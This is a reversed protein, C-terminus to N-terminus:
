SVASLFVPYGSMSSAGFTLAQLHMQDFNNLTNHGRVAVARYVDDSYRYVTTIPCLWQNAVYDALDTIDGYVWRIYVPTGASLADYIEQMTKNLTTGDVDAILASGANAVGQELKNMKTATVTDGTAWTTPTYAM